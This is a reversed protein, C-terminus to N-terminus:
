KMMKIKYYLIDTNLSNTKKQTTHKGICPKDANRNMELKIYVCM